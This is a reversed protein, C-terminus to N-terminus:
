RNRLHWIPTLCRYARALMDISGRSIGRHDPDSSALGDRETCCSDAPGFVAFDRKLIWRRKYAYLLTCRRERIENAPVDLGEFRDGLPLPALLRVQLEQLSTKLAHAMSLHLDAPAPAGVLLDRFTDLAEQHKGLGVCANAYVTRSARNGPEVELLKRAEELARADM